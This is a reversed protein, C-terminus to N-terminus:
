GMGQSVSMMESRAEVYRIATMNYYMQRLEGRTIKLENSPGELQYTEFSQESLKVRFPKNDAQVRGGNFAGVTLMRGSVMM